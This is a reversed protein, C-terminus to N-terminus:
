RTGRLSARRRELEEAWDPTILTRDGGSLYAASTTPADAAKVTVEGNRGSRAVSFVAGECDVAVYHYVGGEHGATSICVFDRGTATNLARVKRWSVQQLGM